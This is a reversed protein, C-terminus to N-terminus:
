EQLVIQKETAIQHIGSERSGFLERDQHSWGFGNADGDFTHHVPLAIRRQGIAQLPKSPMKRDAPLVM